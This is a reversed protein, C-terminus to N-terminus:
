SCDEGRQTDWPQFVPQCRAYCDLASCRSDSVMGPFFMHGSGLAACGTGSGSVAFQEVSRKKALSQEALRSLHDLSSSAVTAGPDAFELSLM